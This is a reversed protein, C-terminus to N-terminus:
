KASSPTWLLSQYVHACPQGTTCVVEIEGLGEPHAAVAKAVPDGVIAIVYAAHLAPDKLAIQWDQDDNESVMSRLSRGATQVAGVHNTLSMMVPVNQPMMELSTAISSELSVRTSANVIGEKLVLPIFYMMAICNAVCLLMAAPQWLRTAFRAWTASRSKLWTELQEASLAAFLALAPLLEIGYRANYYAHPWLQPIFIPVSGYAVSYIYFPLPIWLLWAYSEARARVAPKLDGAPVLDVKAGLIAELDAQVRGLGLLGLHAPLDVLLDVDSDPRDEGRAVSGFVRLNTVDYAAAAAVLDRRKRRVLRGVPGSLRSLQPPQQQIDVVLDCGAADILRALTPLSPQRRGAEYASIVSQAVSAKFALEAQSIGAGRRARRLLSGATEDSRDV